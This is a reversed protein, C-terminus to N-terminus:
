HLTVLIMQIKALYMNISILFQKLMESQSSDLNASAKEYLTVLHEPLQDIKKSIDSTGTSGVLENEVVEVTEMTATVTDKFVKIPKDTLNALRIQIMDTSPDVVSKAVLLHSPHGTKQVFKESGEILCSYDNDIHDLTKGSVVVESSHPIEVNEVLAVRCCTFLRM